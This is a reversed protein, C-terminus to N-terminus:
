GLTLKPSVHWIENNKKKWFDVNQLYNTKSLTYTTYYMAIYVYMYRHDEKWIPLNNYRLCCHAQIYVVNLVCNKLCTKM